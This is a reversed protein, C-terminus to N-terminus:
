IAAERDKKKEPVPDIGSSGFPNCRAVRWISLGIGRIVGHVEIAEM